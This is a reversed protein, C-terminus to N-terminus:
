LSEREQGPVVSQNSRAQPIGQLTKTEATGGGKLEANPM